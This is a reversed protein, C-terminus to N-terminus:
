SPLEDDLDGPRREEDSIPEDAEILVDLANDRLLLLNWAASSGDVFRQRSGKLIDILEAIAPVFRLTSWVTMIAAGVAPPSYGVECVGDAWFLTDVVSHVYGALDDASWARASPLGDFMVGLLLQSAMEDTAASAIEDFQIELERLTLADPIRAIRAKAQEVTAAGPRRVNLMPLDPLIVEGNPTCLRNEFSKALKLVRNLQRVPATTERILARSAASLSHAPTILENM